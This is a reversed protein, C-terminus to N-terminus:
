TPLSVFDGFMMVRFFHQNVASCMESAVLIIRITIM